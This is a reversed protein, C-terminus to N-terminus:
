DEIAYAFMASMVCSMQLDTGVFVEEFDANDQLLEFEAIFPVGNIWVSVMQDYAIFMLHNPSYFDVPSEIAFTNPEELDPGTEMLIVENEANVGVYLSAEVRGRRDFTSRAVFGCINEEEPPRFSMVAGMVVDASRSGVANDETYVGNMSTSLLEETYLLEGQRPILDFDELEAIVAQWDATNQRMKGYDRLTPLDGVNPNPVDGEGKQGGEGPPDFRGIEFSDAITYVVETLERDNVSRFSISLIAAFSDEVETVLLFSSEFALNEGGEVLVEDIEVRLAERGSDLEVEEIEDEYSLGDSTFDIVNEMVEEIRNDLLRSGDLGNPPFIVLNIDQGSLNISIEEAVRWNTPYQFRFEGDQTVFTNWDDQAIAGSLLGILGIVWLWRIRSLVNHNV